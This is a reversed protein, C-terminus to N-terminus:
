ECLSRQRHAQRGAQRTTQRDADSELSWHLERFFHEVVQVKIHNEWRPQRDAQRDAQRGTQRETRNATAQPPHSRLLHKRCRIAPTQQLNADTSHILSKQILAHHIIAPRAAAPLQREREMKTVCAIFTFMNDLLRDKRM